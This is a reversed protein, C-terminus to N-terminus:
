APLGTTMSIRIGGISYASMGLWVLGLQALVHVSFGVVQGDFFTFHNFIAEVVTRGGATPKTVNQVALEYQCLLAKM